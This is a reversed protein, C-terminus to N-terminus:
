CGAVIDEPKQLSKNHFEQTALTEMEPTYDYESVLRWDCAPFLDDEGLQLDAVVTKEFMPCWYVRHAQRNTDYPVKHINTATSPSFKGWGHVVIDYTDSIDVVDCEIQKLVCTIMPDMCHYTYGLTHGIFLYTEFTIEIDTKFKNLTKGILNYLKIATDIHKEGYYLTYRNGILGIFLLQSIM